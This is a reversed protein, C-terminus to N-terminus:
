QSSKAAAAYALSMLAGIDQDLHGNPSSTYLDRQHAYPAVMREASVDGPVRVVIRDGIEIGVGGELEHAAVAADDASVPVLAPVAATGLLKWPKGLYYWFGMGRTASGVGADASGGRRLQRFGQWWGSDGGGALIVSLPESRPESSTVAGRRGGWM